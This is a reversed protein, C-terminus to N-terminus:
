HVQGGLLLDDGAYRPVGDDHDGSCAHQDCHGNLCAGDVGQRCPDAGVYRTARTGMAKLRTAANMLKKLEVVPTTAGARNGSIGARATDVPSFGATSKAQVTRPACDLAMLGNEEPPLRIRPEQPFSSSLFANNLRRNNTATGM